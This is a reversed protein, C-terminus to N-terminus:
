CYKRRSWYIACHQATGMFVEQHCFGGNFRVVIALTSTFRFEPSHSALSIESLTTLETYFCEGWMSVAHCVGRTLRTLCAGCIVRRNALRALGPGTHMPPLCPALVCLLSGDSSAKDNSVGRSRQHTICMSCCVCHSPWFCPSAKLKTMELKLIIAVHSIPM